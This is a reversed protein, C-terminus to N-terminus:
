YKVCPGPSVGWGTEVFGYISNDTIRIGKRNVIDNVELFLFAENPPPSASKIDPRKPVHSIINNTFNLYTVYV